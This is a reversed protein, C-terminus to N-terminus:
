VQVFLKIILLLDFPMSSFQNVNTLCFGSKSQSTFFSQLSVEVYLKQLRQITWDKLKKSKNKPAVKSVLSVNSVLSM